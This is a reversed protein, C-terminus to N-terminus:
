PADHAQQKVDHKLLRLTSPQAGSDGSEIMVSTKNITVVTAGDVQGGEEVLQGNIVASRHRGSIKTGQLRYNVPQNVVADPTATALKAATFPPQMPDPLNGVGESPTAALTRVGVLLMVLLGRRAASRSSVM